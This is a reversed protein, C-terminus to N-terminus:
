NNELSIRKMPSDNLILYSLVKYTLLFPPSFHWFRKSCSNVIAFGKYFISTWLYEEINQTFSFELGGEGGLFVKKILISPTGEWNTSFMNACTPWMCSYIIITFKDCLSYTQELVSWKSLYKEVMPGLYSPQILPSIHVNFLYAFIYKCIFLLM